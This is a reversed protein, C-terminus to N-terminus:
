EGLRVSEGSAIAVARAGVEPENTIFLGLMAVKQTQRIIVEVAEAEGRHDGTVPPNNVAVFAGDKGNRFGAEATIALAEGRYGAPHDSAHVMAASLAAADAASQMQRQRLLLQTVEIGLAAFGILVTALLGVQVAISGRQAHRRRSM